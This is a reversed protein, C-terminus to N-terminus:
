WKFLSAFDRGSEPSRGIVMSVRRLNFTAATDTHWPFGFCILLSESRLQAPLGVVSVAEL